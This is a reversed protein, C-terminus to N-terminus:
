KRHLKQLRKSGLEGQETQLNQKWRRPNASPPPKPGLARHCHQIGLESRPLSLETKIFNEVFELVNGGESGEPIGYLRINNRRSRSELDTLKEQMKEQTNLVQSIAEKALSSWEEIDAVRQEAAEVRGVTDKLDTAIENLKRGVEEQFEALNKKMDKSITEHFSNLETKIDLRIAKLEAHIAGINAQLTNRAEHEDSDGDKEASQRDSKEIRQSIKSRLQRQTEGEM